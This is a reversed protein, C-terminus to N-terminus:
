KDHEVQSKGRHKLIFVPILLNHRRTQVGVIEVDIVSVDLNEVTGVVVGELALSVLLEM